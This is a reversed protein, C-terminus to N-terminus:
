YRIRGPSITPPTSPLSIDISNVTDIIENLKDKINNLDNATCYYQLDQGTINTNNFAIKNSAGAFDFSTINIHTNKTSM